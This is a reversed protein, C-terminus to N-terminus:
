PSIRAQIDSTIRDPPLGAALCTRAVAEVSEATFVGYLVEDTPAAVAFLLRTPSPESCDPTPTAFAADISDLDLHIQAPQYWEALFCRQPLDATNVRQVSRINPAM